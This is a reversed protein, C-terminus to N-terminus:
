VITRETQPDFVHVKEADVVVDLMAEEKASTEADIRAILTQAGTTLYLTSESGLPEIVEVKLHAHNDQASVRGPANGSDYIDEPRIGLIVEKGIHPALAEARDEPLHLRFHEMDLLPRSGNQIM